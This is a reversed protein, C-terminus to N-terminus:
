GRNDLRARSNIRAGLATTQTLATLTQSIAM